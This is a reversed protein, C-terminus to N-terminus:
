SKKNNVIENYPMVLLIKVLFYLIISNVSLCWISEASGDKGFYYIFIFYSLLLLLLSYYKNYLLSYSLFFLYFAKVFIEIFGNPYSAWKWKLHGSNSLSTHSKTTLVQYMFFCLTPASYMLILNNRLNINKVLLLSTIPQISLLLLGFTSAIRNVTYNNLNRWLIFEILQMFIFSLMFLYAYSNDFVELKYNSYNNNFAILLLGFIGFIFTNISVYQNWCM